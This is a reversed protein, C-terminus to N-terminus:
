GLTRPGRPTDIEAVLRCADGPRVEVSPVPALEIRALLARVSEPDPHLIVLRLFRCGVDQLRSAPHPGPPRQILAPAAGHLPLSGDATLTFQWSVSERHMTEVAGQEPVADTAISPTSAVWTALRPPSAATLQDLAFWRPRGPPPAAPDIAIVELYTDAGLSLLRNHTGMGPHARGAETSVGLAHHVFSAGIDLSPSVVTLHDLRASM